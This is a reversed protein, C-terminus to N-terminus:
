ASSKWPRRVDLPSIKSMHASEAAWGVKGNGDIVLIRLKKETAKPM